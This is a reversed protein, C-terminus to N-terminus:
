GAAAGGVAGDQRRDARDRALGDALVPPPHIHFGNRGRYLGQMIRNDSSHRPLYFCFASPLFCFDQPEDPDHGVAPSRGEAKQRRVKAVSRRTNESSRSTVRRTNAPRRQSAANQKATPM